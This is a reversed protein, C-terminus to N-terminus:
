AQKVFGADDGGGDDAGAALAALFGFCFALRFFFGAFGGFGLAAGFAGSMRGGRQRGAFLGFQDEDFRVGPIPFNDDHLLM